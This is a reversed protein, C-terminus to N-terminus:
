RGARWELARAELADVFAAKAAIYALRDSPHRAAAERKREGYARAQAPHARLYDRVALHRAEQAGGAECVHVHHSRPRQAPRGFFRYGPSAPDPAYLYGLAELAEVYAARPELAAVSVQLDIVPKSELGPVATSGVHEFRVAVGGLADRLRRLELEAAAPWGPDYACMRVAPDVREDLSPHRAPEGSM